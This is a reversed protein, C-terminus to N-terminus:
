QRVDSGQGSVPPHDMRARFALRNRRLPQAVLARRKGVAQALVDRPVDPGFGALFQNVQAVAQRVLDQSLQAATV